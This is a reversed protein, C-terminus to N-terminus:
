DTRALVQRLLLKLVEIKRARGAGNKTEPYMMAMAMAQQGKTLNRRMLNVSAIYSM